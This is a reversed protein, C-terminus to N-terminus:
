LFPKARELLEALGPEGADLPKGPHIISVQCSEAAEVLDRYSGAKPDAIYAQKNADYVFMRSNIKVCEECTTCRPTEIYAADSAPAPKEAEPAASAPAPAPPPSAPQAELVPKPAVRAQLGHWADLCRRAERAVAEAVIVRHLRNEADVMPISPVGADARGRALRAFYDAYRADSAVFDMLSFATEESARQHEADEYALAHLPWDREPQPNNELSFREGHAATPDYSFAPFARSEMAAAAALYPGCFVSVLAAGSYELAKRVRGRLRYLNSAVTQVVFVENSGLALGALARAQAGFAPANAVASWDLIDHHEVLIKAPLGSALLEGLCANEPAQLDRANLRVVYAPVLEADISAEGFESFVPDHVAEVYEGAAELRAVAMARALEILAPRREQLAGLAAACSEFVFNHSPPSKLVALAARIRNRRGPVLRREPLAKALLRSLAATDFTDDRVALSQALAEPSRGEDSHAYDAALIGALRAVLREADERLARTKDGQVKEWLALVLRGPFAPHCDALEGDLALKPEIDWLTSLRGGLGGALRARIERERRLAQQRVREDTVGALAEDVLESLPRISNEAFVLPFDYRLVTLDRYAAFLAPRLARTDVPELAAPSRAGTLHFALQANLEAHM